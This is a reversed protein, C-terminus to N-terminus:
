GKRGARLNAAFEKVEDIYSPLWESGRSEILDDLSQAKLQNKVDDAAFTNRLLCREYVETAKEEDIGPLEIYGEDVGNAIFERREEALLGLGMV